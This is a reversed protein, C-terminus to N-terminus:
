KEGCNHHAIAQELATIEIYVCENLLANLIDLEPLIGRQTIAVTAPM